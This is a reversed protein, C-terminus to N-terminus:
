IAFRYDNASPKRDLDNGPSIQARLYNESYALLFGGSGVPLIIWSLASM